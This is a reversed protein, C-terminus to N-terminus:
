VAHLTFSPIMKRLFVTFSQDVSHVSCEIKAMLHRICIVISIHVATVISRRESDVTEAEASSGINRQSSPVNVFTASRMHSGYSGLPVTRTIGSRADDAEMRGNRPSDVGLVACNGSGGEM